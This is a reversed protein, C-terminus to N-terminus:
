DNGQFLKDLGRRESTNYGTEDGPPPPAAPTPEALKRFAKETEVAQQAKDVASRAAARAAMMEEPLLARIVDAGREILPRSRAQVIWGPLAAPAVLSTVLIYGLCVLLAGRLAGFLFGLSRDLSNLASSQVARSISRTFISLTLLVVLFIGVAAVGDAILPTSIMQRAIPKVSGLGYLTAFAAGVWAAIGLVEHVFGRLYALLGSLILVVVVAIDLMNVADSM